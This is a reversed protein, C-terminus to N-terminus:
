TKYLINHINSVLFKSLEKIKKILEESFNEQTYIFNINDYCDLVARWSKENKITGNLILEKILDKPKLLFLKKELLLTRRLIIWLHSVSEVFKNAIHEHSVNNFESESFERILDLVKETHELYYKKM